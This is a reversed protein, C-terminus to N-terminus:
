LMIASRKTRDIHSSTLFPLAVMDLTVGHKECLDKTKALEAVTWYGRTRDEIVPYGCIHDVGHRKFFQLREASTPSKQCGVYMQVPLRKKATSPTTKATKDDSACGSVALAGLASTSVTLFHRRNM